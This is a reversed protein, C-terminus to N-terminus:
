IRLIAAKVKVTEGLRPIVGQGKGDRFIQTLGHFSKAALVSQAGIVPVDGGQRPKIAAKGQVGNKRLFL